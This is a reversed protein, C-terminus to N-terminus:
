ISNRYIFMKEVTHYYSFGIQQEIFMRHERMYSSLRKQVAKKKQNNPLVLVPTIKFQTVKTSISSKPRAFYLMWLVLDSDGSRFRAKHTHAFENM